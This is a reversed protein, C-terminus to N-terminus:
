TDKKDTGMEEQVDLIGIKESISSWIPSIADTKSWKKKIEIASMLACEFIHDAWSYTTTYSAHPPPGAPGLGGYCFFHFNKGLGGKNKGLSNKQFIRITM